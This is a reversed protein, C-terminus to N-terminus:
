SFEGQLSEKTQLYTCLRGVTPRVAFTKSESLSFPATVEWLSIIWLSSSHHQMKCRVLKVSRSFSTNGSTISVRTSNDVVRPYSIPKTNEWWAKWSSIWFLKITKLFIKSIPNFLFFKRSKASHLMLLLVPLGLWPRPRHVNQSAVAINFGGYFKLNWWPKRRSQQLM